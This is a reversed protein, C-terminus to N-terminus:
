EVPLTVIGLWFERIREISDTLQQLDDSKLVYCNGQLAYSRFIQESQNTLTFVIIPIRRLHPDTKIDELFRLGDFNPLDLDLLVIDPRPSASYEGQRHLFNIAAEGNAIAVIHSDSLSDNLTQEIIRIHDHNDDIVLILREAAANM